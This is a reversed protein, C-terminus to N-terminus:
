AGKVKEEPAISASFFAFPIGKQLTVKGGGKKRGDM